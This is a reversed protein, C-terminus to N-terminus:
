KKAGFAWRLFDPMAEGWTGPEHRGNEIQLYRIHSEPIGKERLDRMLDVTDDISDIIGNNNRDEEEDLTGCQFWFRQNPDVKATKQIIDHMIRDSDPDDDRVDQSRWWLSGSFIGAAGFTEPHGWVIDLASLGGLSFGAFATDQAREAVRFQTRLHPLFEEMVFQTYKPALDGRGKYDAQRATGYERIRQQATHIGVAVISPFNGSTDRQQFIRAFDMRSLDQGDNFLVVPYPKKADAQYRAPLYVDYTLDRGLAASSFL